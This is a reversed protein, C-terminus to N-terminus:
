HCREDRLLRGGGGGATFRVPSLLCFFYVVGIFLLFQPNEPLTLGWFLRRRCFTAVAMFSSARGVMIVWEQGGGRKENPLM